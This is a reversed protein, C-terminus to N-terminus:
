IRAQTRSGLSVKLMQEVLEKQHRLKDGGAAEMAATLKDSKAQLGAASKRLSVLEKEATAVEAALTQM